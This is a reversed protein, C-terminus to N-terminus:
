DDLNVVESLRLSREFDTGLANVTVITRPESNVEYPDEHTIATLYGRVSQIVGNADHTFTAIRGLDDRTLDKAPKSVMTAARRRVSRPARRTSGVTRRLGSAALM